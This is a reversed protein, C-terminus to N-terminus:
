FSASNRLFNLPLPLGYVDAFLQYLGYLICVKLIIKVCIFSKHDARRIIITVYVLLFFLMFAPRAIVQKMDDYPDGLNNLMHGSSVVLLMLVVVGCTIMTNKIEVNFTTKSFKINHIIYNLLLVPLLAYFVPVGIDGMNVISTNMLIGSLVTLLIIIDIHPFPM